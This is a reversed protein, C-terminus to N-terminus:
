AQADADASAAAPTAPPADAPADAAKGEAGAKRSSAAPAPGAASAQILVAAPEQPLNPTDGIQLEVGDHLVTSLILVKM